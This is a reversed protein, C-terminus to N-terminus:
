NTFVGDSLDKLDVPDGDALVVHHARRDVGLHGVAHLDADEVAALQLEGDVSSALLGHVVARVTSSASVCSLRLSGADFSEVSREVAMPRSPSVNLM